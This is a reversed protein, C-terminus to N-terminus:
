INLVTQIANYKNRMEPENLLLNDLTEIANMVTAHSRENFAEGIKKYPCHPLRLKIFKYSFARSDRYEHKQSPGKVLDPSYGLYTCVTQTISEIIADEENYNRIKEPEVGRIVFQVPCGILDQVQLQFEDMLQNLKYMKTKDLDLM